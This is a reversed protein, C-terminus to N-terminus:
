PFDPRSILHEMSKWVLEDNLHGGSAIYILLYPVIHSTTFISKVVKENYKKM